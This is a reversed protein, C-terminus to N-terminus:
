VINTFTHVIKLNLGFFIVGDIIFIIYAVSFLPICSFVCDRLNNTCEMYSKPSSSACVQHVRYNVLIVRTVGPIVGFADWKCSLEESACMGNKNFFSIFVNHATKGTFKAFLCVSLYSVPLFSRPPLLALLCSSPLGPCNQQCASRCCFSCSSISM